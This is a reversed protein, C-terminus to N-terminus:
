RNIEYDRKDECFYQLQLNEYDDTWTDATTFGELVDFKGNEIYLIFFILDGNSLKACVDNIRGSFDIQVYENSIEFHTFFGCGTFERLVVKSNAYQTRLIELLSDEGSLLMNMVEKEFDEHLM